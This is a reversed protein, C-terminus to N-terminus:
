KFISAIKKISDLATAAEAVAQIIGGGLQQQPVEMYDGVIIEWTVDTQEKGRSYTPRTLLSCDKLIPLTPSSPDHVKCVDSIWEKSIDSANILATLYANDEANQQLTFSLTASRDPNKTVARDNQMGISFSALAGNPTITISGDGFGTINRGFVTLTVETPIYVRPASM